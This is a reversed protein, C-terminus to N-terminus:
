PKLSLFVREDLAIIKGEGIHQPVAARVSGDENKKDTKMAAWLDKKAHASPLELPLGAKKLLATVRPADAFGSLAMEINMGISIASGHPLTYGSLAEVAHGVTHGFNLLLRVDRDHDDAEVTRVKAEVARIVCEETKEKKMALVADINEELWEFFPQDLIAAIKIIEAMGQQVQAAPLSQLLTLDVIVAKPHTVSGIMNKSGGANVATKGGIAADVMGLLTTPVLVCPVGRMFVGAVFGGLDTIMGGGICVIVTKRTCGAGLMQATIREVQELSKSADGSPVGIMLPNQLSSVAKKAIAEVSQDFLVVTREASLLDPLASLADDGIVIRTPAVSRAPPTLTLTHM